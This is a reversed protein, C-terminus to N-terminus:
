VDITRDYYASNSFFERWLYDHFEEWGERTPPIDSYMYDDLGMMYAYSVILQRWGAETTPLLFRFEYKHVSEVVRAM